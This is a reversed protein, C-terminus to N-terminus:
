TKNKATQLFRLLLYLLLYTTFSSFDKLFEQDPDCSNRQSHEVGEFFKM